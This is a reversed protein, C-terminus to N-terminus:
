PSKVLNTVFFDKKEFDDYGYNNDDYKNTNTDFEIKTTKSLFSNKFNSTSKNNKLPRTDNINLTTFSTDDSFLERMIEEKSKQGRQSMLGNFKLLLNQKEKELNQNMKRKEDYILLKQMKINEVRKNREEIQALKKLRNFEKAKEKM